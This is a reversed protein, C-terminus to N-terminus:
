NNVSCPVMIVKAVVHICIATQAFQLKNNTEIWSFRGLECLQGTYGKQCSCTFSALGDLCHGGHECTVNVCDDIDPICDHSVLVVLQIM